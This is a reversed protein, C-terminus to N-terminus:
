SYLEVNAPPCVHAVAELSAPSREPFVEGDWGCDLCTAYFAEAEYAYGFAPQEITEVILCPM